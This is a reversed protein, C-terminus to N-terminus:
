KRLGSPTCRGPLMHRARAFGTDTTTSIVIDHDPLRQRLAEVLRPTCNVEGLSVAHMWIRPTAADFSRIFGFREGWGRRNKGLVLAQYLLVPLYVIGALLYLLDAIWRM